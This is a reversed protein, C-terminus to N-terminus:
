SLVLMAGLHAWCGAVLWLRGVMLWYGSCRKVVLLWCGDALMWGAVLMPLLWLLLWFICALMTPGRAPQRAYASLDPWPGRAPGQGHCLRLRKEGRRLLSPGRAGAASRQYPARTSLIDRQLKCHKKARHCEVHKGVKESRTARSPDVHALM